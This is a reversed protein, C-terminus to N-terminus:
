ERAKRAILLFGAQKADAALEAALGKGAQVMALQIELTMGLYGLRRSEALTRDLLAGAEDSRGLAHLVRAHTTDRWLRLRADKTDSLLKAGSALTDRASAAAGQALQISATAVIADGERGRAGARRFAAAADQAAKLAAPARKQELLIASHIVNSDALAITEGLEQRLALSETILSSADAIRDMRLSIMAMGATAQATNNKDHQQRRTALAESLVSHSRALNGLDLWVLSLNYQAMAVGGRDGIAKLSTVADENMRLAEKLEGERRRINGMRSRALAASRRDGLQQRIDLSEATDHHARPLDGMIELVNGSNYLSTAVGARDGVARRTELAQQHMDLAGRLDGLRRRLVGLSDLDTGICSQDGLTRCVTLAEEYRARAGAADGRQTLVGATENLAWAVGQRHGAALYLQQSQAAEALATQPDGSDAAIRSAILHARAALIRMGQGAGAQAARLAAYRASTLDAAALMAEAEALDVRPDRASSPLERLSRLTQLASRPDGGQTQASALLLGYELNDPVETRLTQYTAVAQDWARTTEQYRGQISLHEERRLGASLDLAKKAEDRAELDYGLLGSAASLAAHSLAHAPAATVANRLLDRAGLTDFTRLRELGESYNRAAEANDPVSGRVSASDTAPAAGSDLQRRLVSGANTVLNVLELLSRTDSASATLEGSSTEQLRLDLRLKAAAGEGITLYSGFVVFDASLNERLRGLTARTLTQPNPLAMELKVRSVLEGPVTRLQGGAALETSLMETLATSLWEASPQGSLNQFGLVAVSRRVNLARPAGRRAYVAFFAACIVTVLAMAAVTRRSRLALRAVRWSLRRSSVRGGALHRQLDASLDAVSPYRDVPHKNLATLVIADLNGSLERRLKTHTSARGEFIAAAIPDKPNLQAVATSPRLPTQTAIAHMFESPSAGTLRYPPRGGLLEFLLVGLSYIDSAATVPLGRAQEPSAYHPTMVPIITLTADQTPSAVDLVKAIGFDLLKPEGEATVLINEPKIDRHVVQAEHACQVAACVKIFLKLRAEISLRNRDCYQSIHQGAVHELVFYPLGEPTAGVDLIKAINAHNLTQLIRRENYFRRLVSDTDMGRKILKIALIEGSELHRALYVVGMGGEGIRRLLQYGDLTRRLNLDPPAIDEPHQHPDM